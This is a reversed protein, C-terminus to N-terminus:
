KNGSLLIRGNYQKVPPISRFYEPLVWVCYAINIKGTQYLRELPTKFYIIILLLLIFLDATCIMMVIKSATIAAARVM